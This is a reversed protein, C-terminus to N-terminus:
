VKNTFTGLLFNDYSVLKEKSVLEEKSQFEIQQQKSENFQFYSTMHMKHNSMKDSM